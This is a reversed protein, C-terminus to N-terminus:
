ERTGHEHRFAFICSFASLYRAKVTGGSRLRALVSPTRRTGQQRDKREEPQRFITHQRQASQDFPHNSDHRGKGFSRLATTMNGYEIEVTNTTANM